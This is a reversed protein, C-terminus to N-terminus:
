PRREDAGPALCVLLWCVADKERCFVRFCWIEVTGRAEAIM